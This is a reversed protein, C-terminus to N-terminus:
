VKVMDNDDHHVTVVGPHQYWFPIAIILVAVLLFASVIQLAWVGILANITDDCLADRAKRWIRNPPPCSALAVIADVRSEATTVSTRLTVLDAYYSAAMPTAAILSDM